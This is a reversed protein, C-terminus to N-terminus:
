RKLKSKKWEEFASYEIQNKTQSKTGNQSRDLSNKEHLTTATNAALRARLDVIEQQLDSVLQKAAQERVSCADAKAVAKEMERRLSQITHEDNLIVANAVQLEHAKEVLKAKM